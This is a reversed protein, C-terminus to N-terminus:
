VIMFKFFSLLHIFIFKFCTIFYSIILSVLFPASPYLIKFIIKKSTKFSHYRFIEAEQMSFMCNEIMNFLLMAHFISIGQFFMVYWFKVDSEIWTGVSLLDIHYVKYMQNEAIKNYVETGKWHVEGKYLVIFRIM